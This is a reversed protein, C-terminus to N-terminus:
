AKGGVQWEGIGIEDHMGVGRKCFYIGLRM